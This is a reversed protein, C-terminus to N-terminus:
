RCHQCSASRSRTTVATSTKAGQQTATTTQRGAASAMKKNLEVFDVSPHLKPPPPIYRGTILAQIETVGRPNMEQYRVNREVAGTSYNHVPNHGARATAVHGGISKRVDQEYKQAYSLAALQARDMCQPPDCSQEGGPCREHKHTEIAQRLAVNSVATDQKSGAGTYKVPVYYKWRAHPATPAAKRDRATGTMPLRSSNNREAKRASSATSQAYGGRSVSPPRFRMAGGRPSRVVLTSM